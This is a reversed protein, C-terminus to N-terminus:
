RKEKEPISSRHFSRGIIKGGALRVKIYITEYETKVLVQYALKGLPKKLLVQEVSTRDRELQEALFDWAGTMTFPQGSSPDTVSTPWWKSPEDPWFGVIRKDKQRALGALERKIANIDPPM